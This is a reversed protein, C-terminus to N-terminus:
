VVVKSQVFTAAANADSSYSLHAADVIPLGECIPDDAFCYTDVKSAPINALAKGDDPDGFLVQKEDVEIVIKFSQYTSSVVAIVKSALASSLKAAGLHVVQAGQSLGDNTCNLLITNLTTSYRYGSLVIQTDPCQTSALQTLNALTSAGAPDGGELYGAITAGYDVGQLGVKSAGLATDLADFFPPGALAGVNGSETTGRAFIVTVERCIGDVLDNETDSDARSALLRNELVQVPLASTLTLLLLISSLISHM